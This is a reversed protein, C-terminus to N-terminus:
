AICMPAPGDPLLGHKQLLARAEAQWREQRTMYANTVATQVTIALDGGIHTAAVAECLADYERECFTDPEPAQTTYSAPGTTTYALHLM